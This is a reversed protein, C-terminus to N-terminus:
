EVSEALAIAAEVDLATELRHTQVGDSWLLTNAALRATEQVWQGNGDVFAVVHVGNRLFLGDVDGVRVELVDTASPDLMKRYIPMGTNGRFVSLLAGVDGVPSAPLDDRPKWVEVIQGGAPEDTAYVADPRGLSPLSPATLGTRDQAEDITVPAGLSPLAAGPPPLSPLPATTVPTTGLEIDVGGIGLWRAVASRVSPVGVVVAAILIAAALLLPWVRRRRPADAATKGAPPAGVADVELEDLRAEIRALLDDEGDFRLEDAVRELLLEVADAM